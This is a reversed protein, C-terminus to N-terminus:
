GQFTLRRMIYTQRDVVSWYWITLTRRALDLSLVYRTAARVERLLRQHLTPITITFPLPPLSSM